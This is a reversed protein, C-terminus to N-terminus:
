NQISKILGPNVQCLQQPRKPNICGFLVLFGFNLYIDKTKNEAESLLTLNPRRFGKVGLDKRNVM